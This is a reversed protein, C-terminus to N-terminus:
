FAGQRAIKMSQRLYGMSEMYFRRYSYGGKKLVKKLAPWVTWLTMQMLFIRFIEQLRGSRLKYLTCSQFVLHRLEDHLMQGCIRKLVGSNTCKSLARYYSLAIMEATVLVIVEGKLGGFRRLRRFWMDLWNKKRLPIGYYEMYRKLYYSHRNEEAIFYKIAELYSADGSTKVYRQATKLLHSGDSAEGAQFMRISPFIRRKESETLYNEATFEVTLGERANRSFYEPWDYDAIPGTFLKELQIM